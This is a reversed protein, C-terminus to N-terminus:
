GQSGESKEWGAATEAKAEEFTPLRCLIWGLGAPPPYLYLHRNCNHRRKSRQFWCQPLVLTSYIQCANGSACRVTTHM